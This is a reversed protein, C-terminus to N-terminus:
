RTAPAIPKVMVYDDMVFGDGIKVVVSDRITFGHKRYAAIAPANQKNVALVIQDLRQERAAMEVRQLLMHALGQRQTDPHIYLKHLKLERTNPVPGYSSFGRLQDQILLREYAVGDRLERAMTELHYMRALM